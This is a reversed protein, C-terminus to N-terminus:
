HRGISHDVEAEPYGKLSVGPLWIEVAVRHYEMGEGDTEGALRRLLLAGSKEMVHHLVGVVGKIVKQLHADARVYEVCQTEQGM